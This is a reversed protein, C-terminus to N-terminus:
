CDCGALRCRRPMVGLVQAVRAAVLCPRDHVDRWGFRLVLRGALAHATDRDMDRWQGDADDHGLRGDLEIVVNGHLMDVRMHGVVSQREGIPVGHRRLCNAFEFEIEFLSHSGAAM